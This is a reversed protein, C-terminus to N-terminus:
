DPNLCADSGIQFDKAAGTTTSYLPVINNVGTMLLAEEVM